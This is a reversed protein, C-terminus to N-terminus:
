QSRMKSLLKHKAIRRENTVNRRWNAGSFERDAIARRHDYALERVLSAQGEAELVLRKAEARAAATIREAHQTAIQVIHRAQILDAETPQESM